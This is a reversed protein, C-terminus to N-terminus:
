KLLNLKNECYHEPMTRRTNTVSFFEISKFNDSDLLFHKPIFLLCYISVEPPIIAPPLLRSITFLFDQLKSSVIDIARSFDALMVRDDKTSLVLSSAAFIFFLM